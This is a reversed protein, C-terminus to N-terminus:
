ATWFLVEPPGVESASAVVQNAAAAAQPGGILSYTALAVIVVSPVAVFIAELAAQLRCLVVGRDPSPPASITRATVVLVFSAIAYAAVHAAVQLPLRGGGRHLAEYTSIYAVYEAVQPSFIIVGGVAASILTLPLLVLFSYMAEGADDSNRFPVTRDPWTKGNTQSRVM